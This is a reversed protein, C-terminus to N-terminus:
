AGEVGSGQWLARGELCGHRGGWGLGGVKVLADVANSSLKVFVRGEM